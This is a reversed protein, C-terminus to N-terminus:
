EIERQARIPNNDLYRIHRILYLSRYAPSAVKSSLKLPAIQPTM